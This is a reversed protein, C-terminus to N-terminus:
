SVLWDKAKEITEMPEFKVKLFNNLMMLLLKKVGSVGLVAGKKMKNNLLATAKNLETMVENNAYSDTADVLVLVNDPAKKYAEGAKQAAAILEKDALKTYDIFLIKQGKHEIWSIREEM